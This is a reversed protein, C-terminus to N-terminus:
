RLLKENLAKILEPILIEYNLTDTNKKNLGWISKPTVGKNGHKRITKNLENKTSSSSDIELSKGLKKFYMDSFMAGSWQLNWPNGPIKSKIPNQKRAKEFTAPKYSGIVQGKSDKGQNMQSKQLDFLKDSKEDLIDFIEESVNFSDLKKKLNLLDDM